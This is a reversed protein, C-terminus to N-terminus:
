PYNREIRKAESGLLERVKNGVGDFMTGRRDGLIAFLMVAAQVEGWDEGFPSSKPPTPDGDPRLAEFVKNAARVAQDYAYADDFWSSRKGAERQALMWNADMVDAVALLLGAPERGFALTLAEVLLEQRDFARELFFEAQQSLSRGSKQASQELMLKMEPTVRLSVPVREGPKAQRKPGGGFDRPVKM